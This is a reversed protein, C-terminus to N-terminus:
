IYSSKGEYSENIISELEGDAAQQVIEVDLELAGAIQEVTLGLALFGPISELKGELKGKEEAEYTTGFAGEGLPTVLRYRDGLRHECTDGIIDNVQHLIEM